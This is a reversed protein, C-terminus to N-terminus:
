ESFYEYTYLLLDILAGNANTTKNENILGNEYVENTIEYIKGVKYQYINRTSLQNNHYSYIMEADMQNNLYSTIKLVNGSNFQYRFKTKFETVNGLVWNSSIILKPKGKIFQSYNTKLHIFDNKSQLSDKEQWELLERKLLIKKKDYFYGYKKVVNSRNMKSITEEILNGSEDYTYKVFSSDGDKFYIKDTLRNQNDYLYQTTEILTNSGNQIDYYKQSTILTDKYYSIAQSYPNGKEDFYTWRISNGKIDFEEKMILITDGTPVGDIVSVRWKTKTNIRFSKITQCHLQIGGYILFLSIIFIQIRLKIM